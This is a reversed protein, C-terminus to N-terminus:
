ESAEMGVNGCAHWGEPKGAQRAQQADIEAIARELYIAQDLCEEKAHQLLQLLSLPNEAVTMGYKAIGRKQRAAIEACIRAEVGDELFIGVTM